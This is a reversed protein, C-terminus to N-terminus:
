ASPSDDSLAPESNKIAAEQAEATLGSLRQAAAACRSIPAANKEGLWKVDAETFLAKNEADVASMAVLLIEIEREQQAQADNEKQGAKPNKKLGLSRQVFIGRAIATLNRMRVVAETDGDAWEPCAVDETTIDNASQIQERTIIKM